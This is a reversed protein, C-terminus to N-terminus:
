VPLERNIKIITSDIYETGSEDTVTLILKTESGVAYDKGPMFDYIQKTCVEKYQVPSTNELPIIWSYKVAGAPAVISSEFIGNPKSRKILDSIIKFRNSTNNSLRHAEDIIILDYKAQFLQSNKMAEEIIKNNRSVITKEKYELSFYQNNFDELLEDYSSKCSVFLTLVTFIMLIQKKM